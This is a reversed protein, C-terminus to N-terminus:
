RMMRESDPPGMSDPLRRRGPASGTDLTPSGSIAQTSRARGVSRKGVVTFRPSPGACNTSRCAITHSRGALTRTKAVVSDVCCVWGYDGSRGREKPDLSEQGGIFSPPAV